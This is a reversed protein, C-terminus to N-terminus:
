RQVGEEVQRVIKANEPRSAFEELRSRIYTHMPDIKPRLTLYCVYRTYEDQSGLLSILDDEAEMCGSKYLQCIEEVIIGPPTIDMSYRTGWSAMRRRLKLLEAQMNRAADPKRALPCTKKQFHCFM